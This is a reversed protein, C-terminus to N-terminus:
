AFFPPPELNTENQTARSIQTQFKHAISLFAIISKDSFPILFSGLVSWSSEILVLPVTTCKNRILRDPSDNGNQNEYYLATSDISTSSALVPCILTDQGIRKGLIPIYLGLVCKSTEESLTTCVPSNPPIWLSLRNNPTVCFSKGPGVQRFSHVRQEEGMRNM